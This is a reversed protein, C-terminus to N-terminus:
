RRSDWGYAVWSHGGIHRAEIVDPAGRRRHVVRRARAAATALGLLIGAMVLSALVTAAFFLALAVGTLAAAAWVILGGAVGLLRVAWRGPALILDTATARM